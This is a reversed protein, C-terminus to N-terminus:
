RFSWEITWEEGEPDVNLRQVRNRARQMDMLYDFYSLSTDKSLSTSFIYYCNLTDFRVGLEYRAEVVDRVDAASYDIVSLTHLLPCAAKHSDSPSSLANKFALGNMCSLDLNELLPVAGLIDQTRNSSRLLGTFIIRNLIPSREIFSMVLDADQARHFAFSMVEMSPMSCAGMLMPAVRPADVDLDLEYLHPLVISPVPSSPHVLKAHLQLSLRHLKPNSRLVAALQLISPANDSFIFHLVLTTLGTLRAVDTWRFRTDYTRFSSISALAASSFPLDHVVAAMMSTPLRSGYWVFTVSKLREYSMYRLAVFVETWRPFSDVHLYIYDCQGSHRGFFALIEALSPTDIGSPPSPDDELIFYLQIKLTRDRFHRTMEQLENRNMNASIVYSTWMAPCDEVVHYLWRCSLEIRTRNRVFAVPNDFYDCMSELLALEIVEAPIKLFTCGPPPPKRAIDRRTCLTSSLRRLKPSLSSHPYNDPLAASAVECILELLGPGGPTIDLDELREMSALLDRLHHPYVLAKYVRLSLALSRVYKFYPQNSWLLDHVTHESCTLYLRRVSPVVLAASVRSMTFTAVALTLDTLSGLAPLVPRNILASYPVPMDSCDMHSLDLHTISKSDRLIQQLQQWPLVLNRLALSTLGSFVKDAPWRPITGELVLQRLAPVSLTRTLGRDDYLPLHHRAHVCPISAHRIHLFHLTPSRIAAVHRTLAQAAAASTTSITLSHCRSWSADLVTFIVDVFCEVDSNLWRNNVVFKTDTLDLVVLLPLTGSRIISRRLSPVYTDFSIYLHTWALSSGDIALCWRRNLQRLSRRVAAYRRPNELFSGMACFLLLLILDDPVDAAASLTVSGLGALLVSSKLAVTTM